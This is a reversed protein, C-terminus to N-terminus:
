KNDGPLKPDSLEKSRVVSSPDDRLQASVERLNAATAQLDSTISAMQTATLSLIYRLDSVALGVPKANTAIL